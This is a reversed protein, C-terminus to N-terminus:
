PGPEFGDETGTQVHYAGTRNTGMRYNYLEIVRTLEVLNIKGDRNSDASHYASLTVAATSLRSPDAAFGDETQLAGASAPVVYAGTRVTGNFTNYLEIVRTLEVLSIRYNQDTDAGHTMVQPVSLPDPTALFQLSTGNRVGVLAVLEPLGAQGAPVNLSYTFSLPSEPIDTWAWQLESTQGVLPGQDGASGASSAFSWGTPLLVAWSLASATGSYTLTNTLTVTRGAVYGSGVVAHTASNGPQTLTFTAIASKVTGASNTAAVTYNGAASAQVNNLTLGASTAGLIAVGNFYWQFTPAPSGTAAVVFTVTGGPGTSSQSVPQIRIVPVTAPAVVLSAVLSTVSGAANSVVVDYDGADAAVTGAITYTANTAGGIATGGKRWQYALPASSTAGVSLSVPNGATVTQSSPQTTIAPSALTVTLTQSVSTAANYNTAGSQSATITTTGSGVITVTNGSVTAVATNSSLYTVTLDSSATASLVFAADGFTKNALTGFTITQSARDVTLSVTTASGANYNAADNPTFGVSLSQIGATLVTGSAPTYIFSGAVNATANLQTASLATGFTIASPTAWTVTPTAKAVTVNVTTTAVTYNATSTPTFTVGQAATGANPATSTTTFAFTGAVSATGGSLTSAAL